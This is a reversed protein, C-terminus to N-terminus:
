ASAAAERKEIEARIAAQKERDLPFGWMLSVAGMKLLCPLAAYLLALALVSQASNEGPAAQADFGALSLLPFAIGVALALALKTFFGWAAFFVGARRDGSELRDYDVVDAFTAAPLSLDAGAGFGTIVTIILFLTFDGPGVFFPVAVFAACTITMAVCWARHKGLRKSLTFWLPISAFSSLFYVLLLPGYSDPRELVHTAFLIFLSAPLGNAVSSLFYAPLIRRFPKNGAIFKLGKWFKVPVVKTPAEDPVLLFAFVLGIPLLVMLVTALASAHDRVDPNGMATLVAPLSAAVVTGALIYGERFATIRTREDYDDSVEAGWANYPIILLTWSITLLASWLALYGITAEEPPQFVMYIALLTIPLGFLLWPKRRGFRTRTRDSLYGVLPDSVADILRVLFLVLGVLALDLGVASSYLTPVFVYVPLTLGALAMGPAGYALLQVMSLRRAM